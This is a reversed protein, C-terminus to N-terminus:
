RHFHLYHKNTQTIFTLFVIYSPFYIMHSSELNEMMPPKLSYTLCLNALLCKPINSSQRYNSHQVPSKWKGGPETNQEDITFSSCSLNETKSRILM